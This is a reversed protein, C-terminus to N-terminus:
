STASPACCLPWPKCRSREDSSMSTTACPPTTRAARVLLFRDVTGCESWEVSRKSRGNVKVVVFARPAGPPPAHNELNMGGTHYLVNSTKNVARLRGAMNGSEIQFHYVSSALHMHQGGAQSYAFSGVFEMEFLSTAYYARSRVFFFM